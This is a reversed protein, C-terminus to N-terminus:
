FSNRLNPIKLKGSANKVNGKSSPPDRFTMINTGDVVSIRSLQKLLERPNKKPPIMEPVKKEEEEEQTGLVSHEVFVGPLYFM